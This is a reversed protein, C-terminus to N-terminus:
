NLEILRGQYTCPPFNEKKRGMEYSDARNHANLLKKKKEKKEGTENSHETQGPMRMAFTNKKKKLKM